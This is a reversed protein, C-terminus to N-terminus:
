QESMKMEEILRDVNLSEQSGHSRFTKQHIMDIDNENAVFDINVEDGM